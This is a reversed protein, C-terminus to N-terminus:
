YHQIFFFIVESLTYGKNILESLDNELQSESPTEDVCIAKGEILFTIEGKPQKTTFAEKVEEITGRWFQDCFYENLFM